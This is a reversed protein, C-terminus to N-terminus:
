EPGTETPWPIDGAGAVDVTLLLEWDDTIVDLPAWGGVAADWAGVLEVWVMGSIVRDPSVGEGTGSM